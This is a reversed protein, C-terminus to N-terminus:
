QFILDLREQETKKGFVSYGSLSYDKTSLIIKLIIDNLDTCSYKKKYAYEKLYAVRINVSPMNADSYYDMM